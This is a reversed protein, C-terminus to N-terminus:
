VAPGYCPLSGPDRPVDLFTALRAKRPYCHAHTRHQQDVAKQGRRHAHLGKLPPQRAAADRPDGHGRHWREANLANGGQGFGDVARDATDQARRTAVLHVQNAHALTSQRRQPPQLLTPGRSRSPEHGEATRKLARPKGHRPHRKQTRDGLSHPIRQWGALPYLRQHRQSRRTPHLAGAYGDGPIRDGGWRAATKGTSGKAQCRPSPYGQAM